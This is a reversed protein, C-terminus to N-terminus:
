GRMAMVIRKSGGDATFVTHSSDAHYVIKLEDGVLSEAAEAGWDPNIVATLDAGDWALEDTNEEGGMTATLTMLGDAGTMTVRPAKGKDVSVASVRRMADIFSQRWVSGGTAETKPLLRKWDPYPHELGKTRFSWGDSSFEIWRADWCIDVEGADKFMRRISPLATGPITIGCRLSTPELSVRKGDTGIALGTKDLYVGQIAHRDSSLPEMAYGSADLTRLLEGGGVRVKEGALQEFLAAPWAGDNRVEPVRWRAKNQALSVMGDAQSLTVPGKALVQARDMLTQTDLLASLEGDAAVEVVVSQDNNTAEFRALGNGIMLRVSKLAPMGTHRIAVHSCAALASKLDQAQIASL